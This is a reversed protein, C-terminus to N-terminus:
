ELWTVELGTSLNSGGTTMDRHWWQYYMTVGAAVGSAPGSTFDLALSATNGSAMIPASLRQTDPYGLCLQGGTTLSVPAMVSMSQAFIGFDDPTDTVILSSDNAAISGGSASSLALLSGAASVSNSVAPFCFVGTPASCINPEGPTELFGGLDFFDGVRFDNGCRYM